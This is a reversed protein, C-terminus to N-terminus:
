QSKLYLKQINRDQGILKLTGRGEGARDWRLGDGGQGGVGTVWGRAAGQRPKPCLDREALYGDQTSQGPDIGPVSLWYGSNRSNCYYPSISPSCWTM